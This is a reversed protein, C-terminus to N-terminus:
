SKAAAAASKDAKVEQEKMKKPFPKAEGKSTVLSKSRPQGNVTLGADSLKNASKDGVGKVRTEFDTWDKFEGKKREDLIRKSMAPGIGKIGDLGAQDAKNVDAQAFALGASMAFVCIALLIKKLM